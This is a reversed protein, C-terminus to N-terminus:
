EQGGEPAPPNVFGSGGCTGCTSHKVGEATNVAISREGNCVPCVVSQLELEAGPQPLAPLQEWLLWADAEDDYETSWMTGDNAVAVLQDGVAAIAAIQRMEVQEM